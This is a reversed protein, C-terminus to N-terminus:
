EEVPCNASFRVPRAPKNVALNFLGRIGAHCFPGPDAEEEEVGRSNTSRTTHALANVVEQVAFYKHGTEFWGQLLLTAGTTGVASGQSTIALTMQTTGQLFVVEPNFEATWLNRRVEHVFNNDRGWQLLESLVSRALNIGVNAFSQLLEENMQLVFIARTVGHSDRYIKGM